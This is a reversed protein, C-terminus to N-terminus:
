GDGKTDQLDRGAMESLSERIGGSTLRAIEKAIEEREDASRARRYARFGVCDCSTEFWPGRQTVSAILLM